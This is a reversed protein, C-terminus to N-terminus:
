ANLGSRVFLLSKSGLSTGKVRFTQVPSSAFDLMPPDCELGQGLLKLRFSPDAHPITIEIPDSWVGYTLRTQHRSPTVTWGRAQSAQNSGLSQILAQSRISSYITGLLDDPVLLRPDKSHFASVFIDKTIAHNPLAFGFTGYLADNLQVISLVLDAALDRDFSVIDRNIEFYRYAFVRLLTESDNPDQPMRISLLFARLAEDIRVGHFKFRDIYARLLKENSCLLYGLQTKDLEPTKFLLSALTISDFRNTSREVLYRCAALSDIAFRDIFTEVVPHRSAESAPEPEIGSVVLQDLPVVSKVIYQMDLTAQVGQTILPKAIILIDNFM